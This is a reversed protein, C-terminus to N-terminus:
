EAGADGLVVRHVDLEVLVRTAEIPTSPRSGPGDASLTGAAEPGPRSLASTRTAAGATRSSGPKGCATSRHAPECGTGRCSRPGTGVRAAMHHGASGRRM